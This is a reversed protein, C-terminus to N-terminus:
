PHSVGGTTGGRIQLAKQIQKGAEDVFKMANSRHGGYEKPAAQLDAYAEKLMNYAQTLKANSAAIQDGTYKTRDGREQIVPLAAAQKEAAVLQPDQGPNLQRANVQKGNLQTHNDFYIGARIEGIALRDLQIARVRHGEYIPLASELTKNAQHILKEAALMQKDDADHKQHHGPHKGNGQQGGIVQQANATNFIAAFLGLAALVNRTIM